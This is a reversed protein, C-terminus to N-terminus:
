EEVDSDGAGRGMRYKIDYNIIFDLEEDTFGYPKALEQDIADIIPKSMRPQFSQIHLVGHAGYDNTLTVSNARFDSMLRRSLRALLDRQEDGLANIGLRFHQIERRNLNRMDSFASIFWFFTNSNLAASAVDRGVHDDFYLEKLESPPVEKGRATTIKPVFDFFQAFYRLKRTYYVAHRSHRVYLSGLKPHRSLRALAAIEIDSSVKPTSDGVLAANIQASVYSSSAM